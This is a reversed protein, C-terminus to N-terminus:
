DVKTGSDRIVKGWKDLEDRAWQSFQEPTNDMTEVGLQAWRERVDPLRLIRAVEANLKAIAEKPTAAPALIGQAALSEFAAYGAEIVTPVDPLSASRAATTVALAKLAGSRIHAMAPPTGIFMLDVRGGVVDTIAAGGGKYPVHTLALGSASKLLEATLHSSTGNGASAINLKGPSQKDGAVVDKLSKFPTSGPAILVHPFTAVIIVPALDKESYPLKPYLAPSITVTAVDALLVTHGDAASKAVLDTGITGGAGARNDVIVQQAWSESLKQAIVRALIDSAGGPAYPVVIRVPKSPYGQARVTTIGLATTVLLCLFVARFLPVRM